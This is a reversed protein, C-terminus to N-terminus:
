GVRLQGTKRKLNNMASLSLAVVKNGGDWLTLKKDMRKLNEICIMASGCNYAPPMRPWHTTYLMVIGGRVGRVGPRGVRAPACPVLVPLVCM